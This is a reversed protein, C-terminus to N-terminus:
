QNSGRLLLTGEHKRIQMVDADFYHETHNDLYLVALVNDGVSLAHEKDLRTSRRRLCCPAQVWQCKERVMVNCDLREMWSLEQVRLSPSIGKSSRPQIREILKGFYSLFGEDPVQFVNPDRTVLCRGQNDMYLLVVDHWSGDDCLAEFLLDNLANSRPSKSPERLSSFTRKEACKKKRLMRGSAAPQPARPLPVAFEHDKIKALSDSENVRQEANSSGLGDMEVDRNGSPDQSM